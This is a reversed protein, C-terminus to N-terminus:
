QLMLLVVGIVYLNITKFICVYVCYHRYPRVLAFSCGVLPWWEFPFFSPYATMTTTGIVYWRLIITSDIDDEKM